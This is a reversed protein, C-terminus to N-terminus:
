QEDHIPADCAVGATRAAGDGARLDSLLAAGGVTWILDTLAAAVTDGLGLPMDALADAPLLAAYYLPPMGPPTGPADASCWEVLAEPGYGARDALARLMDRLTEPDDGLAGPAAPMADSDSAQMANMAM